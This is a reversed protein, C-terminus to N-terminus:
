WLFQFSQALRSKQRARNMLEQYKEESIKNEARLIELIEEAVSRKQALGAGAFLHVLAFGSLIITCIKRMSVNKKERTEFTHRYPGKGPNSNLIGNVLCM